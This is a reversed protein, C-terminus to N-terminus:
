RWHLFPRIRVCWELSQHLLIFYASPAFYPSGSIQIDGTYFDKHLHKLCDLAISLQGGEASEDKGLELLCTKAGLRRADAPFYIYREVQLGVQMDGQSCSLGECPKMLGEVM